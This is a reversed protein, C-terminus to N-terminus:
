RKATFKRGALVVQGDQGADDLVFKSTPINISLYSKAAIKSSAPLTYAKASPQTSTGSNDLTWGALSVASEGANYLEVWENDGDDKSPNSLFESIQVTSSYTSAASNNSGSSGGGGGPTIQAPPNGYEDRFEFIGDDYATASYVAQARWLKIALIYTLRM